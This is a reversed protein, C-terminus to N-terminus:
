ARSRARAAEPPTLPDVVDVRASPGEVKLEAVSRLVDSRSRHHASVALTRGDEGVLTWWWRGDNDHRVVIRV